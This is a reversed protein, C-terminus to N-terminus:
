SLEKGCKNLIIGDDQKDRTLKWAFIMQYKCALEHLIIYQESCYKEINTCYGKYLIIGFIQTQSM